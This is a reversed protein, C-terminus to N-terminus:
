WLNGKRADRIWLAVLVIPAATAVVTAVTILASLFSVSATM